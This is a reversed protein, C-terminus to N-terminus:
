LDLVNLESQKILWLADKRTMTSSRYVFQDNQYGIILIDSWDERSALALAEDPRMNNTKNNLEHIITM